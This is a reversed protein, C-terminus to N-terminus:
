RRPREPRAPRPSVAVKEDPAVRLTLDAGGVRAARVPSSKRAGHRADSHQLSTFGRLPRSVRCLHGAYVSVAKWYVAMPAKNQRWSHEARERADRALDRLLCALAQRSEPPLDIIAQASPLALLPNRVDASSSRDYM